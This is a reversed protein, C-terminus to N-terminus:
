RPVAVRCCCCCHVLGHYTCSISDVPITQQRIFLSVITWWDRFRGSCLKVEYTNRGSQHRDINTGDGRSDEHSEILM